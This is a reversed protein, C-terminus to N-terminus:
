RHAAQCPVFIETRPEDVEEGDLYLEWPDETMTLNNERVWDMVAEYAIGLQDYSGRHITRAASGSPLAMPEVRGAATAPASVPFGATIDWGGDDSPRYRGFPAGTVELGQEAVAALVEGFAHGLFEAVGDHAVHGRVVATQQTPLEALTISYSMCDM